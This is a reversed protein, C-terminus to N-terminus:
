VSLIECGGPVITFRGRHFWGAITPVAALSAIPGKRAVTVGNERNFSSRLLPESILEKVSYHVAV